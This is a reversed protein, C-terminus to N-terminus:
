LPKIILKENKTYRSMVIGYLHLHTWPCGAGNYKKLKSVRFNEPYELDPYMCLSSFCISRGVDTKKMQKIQNELM